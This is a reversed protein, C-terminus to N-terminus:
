REQASMRWKPPMAPPPASPTLQLHQPQRQRARVHQHRDRQRGAHHHRNWRHRRLARRRAGQDAGHHPCRQLHSRRRHHRRHLGRAARCVVRRRHHHKRDRQLHRLSGHRVRGSQRQRLYAVRQRYLRRVRSVLYEHDGGDYGVPEYVCGGTSDSQRIVFMFKNANGGASDIDKKLYFGSVQTGDISVFTQHGVLGDFKVWACATYAANSPTAASGATSTGRAAMSRSPTRTTINSGPHGPFAPRGNAGGTSTDRIAAGRDLRAVGTGQGEDLKWYGALSTESPDEVRLINYGSVNMTENSNANLVVTGSSATLTGSGSNLDPVRLTKTSIDM